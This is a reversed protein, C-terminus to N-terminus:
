KANWKSSPFRQAVNAQDDKTTNTRNDFENNNDDRSTRGGFCCCCTSFTMGVGNRGTTTERRQLMWAFSTLVWLSNRMEWKTEWKSEPVVDCESERERARTHSLRTSDCSKGNFDSGTRLRLHHTEFAVVYTIASLPPYHNNGNVMRLAVMGRIRGLSMNITGFSCCVCHCFSNFKDECRQETRWEVQISEGRESRILVLPFYFPSRRAAFCSPVYVCIMHYWLSTYSNVRSEVFNGAANFWM